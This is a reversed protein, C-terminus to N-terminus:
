YTVTAVITDTYLGPSPTTQAPVRGYVTLTQALGTGTGAATNVSVTSGWPLTRASDRYLGYTIKEAGKSMKRLTPNTAADNGGNLSVTYPASATCTISLTGTANVATQIVGTAGFDVTTAAVTCTTVNTATVTFPARATNTGGIAACNGARRYAYAITTNTGTFASIYTGAPKTQQAASVRAFITQTTSGLGNRLRIDITPPTFAFGWFYSGWVTTRASDSYLNFNLQNAGSLLFRPNGTTSGGTGLGISPCIRIRRNGNGTCNASFTATTDFVTNATVNINGFNVNTISFSCTQAGAVDAAAITWAFALVGVLRRKLPAALTM